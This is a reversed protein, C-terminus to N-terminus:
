LPFTFPCHGKTSPSQHEAQGSVCESQLSLNHQIYEINLELYMQYCTKKRSRQFTWCIQQFKISSFGTQPPISQECPFKSVVKHWHAWLLLVFELCVVMSVFGCIVGVNIICVEDFACELWDACLVGASSDTLYTCEVLSSCTWLLLCLTEM